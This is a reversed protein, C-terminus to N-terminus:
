DGTKRCTERTSRLMDIARSYQGRLYYLWAINYDAQGVLVQMGQQQSFRRAEQYIAVARHFDNLSVLCMAINHLAVAMGEPDKKQHRLFYRYAQQYCELAEVFRDQRHFIKGANLEVRALRWKSGM